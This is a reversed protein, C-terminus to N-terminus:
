MGRAKARGRKPGDDSTPAGAEGSNQDTAIRSNNAGPSALMVDGGMHIKRTGPRQTM